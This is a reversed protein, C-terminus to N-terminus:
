LNGEAGYYTCFIKVSFAKTLGKNQVEGSILYYGNTDIGSTHNLIVPGEIPKERTEVYSLTLEYSLDEAETTANLLLYIQFPARQKPKLIKLVTPAVRTGISNNEADYFTANVNVFKINTELNNQVVGAVTFFTLSDAKELFTTHGIIQPQAGSTSGQSVNLDSVGMKITIVLLILASIAIKSKM